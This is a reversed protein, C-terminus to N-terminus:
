VKSLPNLKQLLYVVFLINRFHLIKTKYTASYVCSGTGLSLNEAFCGKSSENPFTRIETPKNKINEGKKLKLRIVGM